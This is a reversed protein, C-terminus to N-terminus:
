EATDARGAVPAPLKVLYLGETASAAWLEGPNDSFSVSTFIGDGVPGRLRDWTRGSDSSIYLGGTRMAAAFVSGKASFDQVPTSPLGTAAQQWSEGADRSIYLGNEGTAILTNQEEPTGDFTRVMGSNLPSDHWTWSRGADDSFVLGRQVAVRIRRGDGSVRVARVSLSTLGGVRIRVWTAGRDHSILLGRNTGAFWETSTFAMDTVIDMLPQLRRAAGTPRGDSDKGYAAPVGKGAGRDAAVVPRSNRGTGGAPGPDVVGAPIWRKREPDYRMLGGRSQSVWWTQDPAVYVRLAQHAALGPGPASWTRGADETMLVPEPAHALVALVRGADNPDRGVALVQRHDFGSNADEFHEGGDESALIGFEETGILVRGSHGGTIVAANVVWTAPTTRSWTKGGDATKWLGESTAAYVRQPRQPDQAIAYTRRATYPIGQIKRWQAAADDSRYIGSCASAYIRRPDAGDILLSMVDSDDIMGEHIANWTRGGDTTKWPLHFTGAYIIEPDHPDVALSDFNRLEAHGEPSIRQWSKSADISRYVGDLTGATLIKPNSPAMVLARVAQGALGADSWTRGGDASRFVGGNAAGERTWSSAFLVDRDRPDVVIATIVADLRTSARGRLAWHAGADESGFIHGDATGLFVREPHSPDAALARVDGGPPGLPKWAQARAITAVLLLVFILSSTRM